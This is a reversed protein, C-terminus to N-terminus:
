MKDPFWFATLMRLMREERFTGSENPPTSAFSSSNLIRGGFALGVCSSQSSLKSPSSRAKGTAQTAVESCKVLAAVFAVFAVFIIFDVRRIKKELKAWIGSTVKFFENKDQCLGLVCALLCTLPSCTMIM